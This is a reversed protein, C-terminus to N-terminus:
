GVVNIYLGDFDTSVVFLKTFPGARNRAQANWLLVSPSARMGKLSVYSSTNLRPLTVIFEIRVSSPIPSASHVPSSAGGALERHLM